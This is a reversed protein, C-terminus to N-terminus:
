KGSSKDPTLKMMFLTSTVSEFLVIPNEAGEGNESAQVDQDIPQGRGPGM